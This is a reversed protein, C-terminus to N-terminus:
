IGTETVHIQYDYHVLTIMLDNILVDFERDTAIKLLEKLTILYHDVEEPSLHGYLSGQYMIQYGTNIDFNRDTWHIGYVQNNVLDFVNSISQQYHELEASSVQYNPFLIRIQDSMM